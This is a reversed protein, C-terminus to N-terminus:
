CKFLPVTFNDNFEEEPHAPEPASNRDIQDDPSQREKEGKKM